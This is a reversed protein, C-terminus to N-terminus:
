NIFPKIINNVEEFTEFSQEYFARQENKYVVTAPISGSWEEAIKPIWSNMDGDTFAIVDSKLQKEKLFPILKKDIQDPFDLSVLLIKVKKGKYTNHLEEFYPLEKVCPKCWTAWFNIVYTTDNQKNFYPELDAFKEIIPPNISFAKTAKKEPVSSPSCNLALLVLFGYFCLIPITKM